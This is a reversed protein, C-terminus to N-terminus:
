REIANVAIGLSTSMYVIMVVRSLHPCVPCLALFYLRRTGEGGPRIPTNSLVCPVLSRSQLLSAEHVTDGIGRVHQEM